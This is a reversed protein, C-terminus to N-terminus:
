IQSIQRDHMQLLNSNRVNEQEPPPLTIGSMKLFYMYDYIEETTIGAFFGDDVSSIDLKEMSEDDTPLGNRNSYIFRTFMRLDLLYEEVTKKFM